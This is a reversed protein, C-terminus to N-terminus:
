IGLHFKLLTLKICPPSVTFREYTRKATESSFFNYFIDRSKVLQKVRFHDTGINRVLIVQTTSRAVGDWKNYISRSNETWVGYDM